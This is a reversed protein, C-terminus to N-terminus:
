KYSLKTGFLDYSHMLVIDIYAMVIDFFIVFITQSVMYCYRLNNLSLGFHYWTVVPLKHLIVVLIDCVLLLLTMIYKKLSIVGQGLLM